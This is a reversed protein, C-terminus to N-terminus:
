RNSTTRLSQKRAFVMLISVNLLISCIFIIILIIFHVCTIIWNDVIVDEAVEEEMDEYFEIEDLLISGDNSSVNMM